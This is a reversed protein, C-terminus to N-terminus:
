KNPDPNDQSQERGFVGSLFAKFFKESLRDSGAKSDKAFARHLIYNVLDNAYEDPVGIPDSLDTLDTPLASYVYQLYGQGSSPQPPFVYFVRPNDPDYMTHKVTSSAAYTNWGVLTEDMLKRDIMRVADGPTAGDTGMNRVPDMFQLGNTPLSQKTGAVLQISSTVPNANPKLRVLERQAANLWRLCEDNSWRTGDLDNLITQADNILSLARLTGM